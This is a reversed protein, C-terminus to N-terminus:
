TGERPEDRGASRSGGDAKTMRRGVEANAVIGAPVPVPAGDPGAYAVLRWEVGEVANTDSTTM